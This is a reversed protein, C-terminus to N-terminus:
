MEIIHENICKMHLFECFSDASGENEPHKRAKHIEEHYWIRNVQHCYVGGGGGGEM